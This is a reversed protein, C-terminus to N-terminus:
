AKVTNVKILFVLTDNPAIAGSGSAGYALSAPIVLERVGGAKVGILGKNWGTIVGAKGLNTVPFPKGGDKYTADFVTGTDCSVGIYTVTLNSGAKAAPGHGSKVDKVVLKKSLKGKPQPIKPQGKATPDPSIKACKTPAKAAAASVTPTPTPTPTATPAAAPAVAVPKKPSGGAFHIILVVAVAIVAATGISAGLWTNRKKAKARREMQLQRRREFRRRALERERRRSTAV